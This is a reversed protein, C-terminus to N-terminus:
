NVGIRKAEEDTRIRLGTVALRRDFVDRAMRKAFGDRLAICVLRGGRLWRAYRTM